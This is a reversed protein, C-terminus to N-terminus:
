HTALATPPPDGASVVRNRGQRKAEYLAADAAAVLDPLGPGDEPWAAVGGSVEIPLGLSKGAVQCPSAALQARLRLGTAHAQRRDTEGLILAFEDGGYRALCDAQRIQSELVGAAHRLVADGVLHGHTDNIAKFHDLDIMMVALPRQFRQSRSWEEQLRRDFERRNRLGTLNDRTAMEDLRAVAAAMVLAYFVARELGHLTLESNELFDAAGSDMAALDTEAKPSGTLLIVPTPCRAAKAERLLELGNRAGLNYDLLCLAYGGHLLRRLGDDYNNAYELVFPERRFRALQLALIDAMVPEDDILLIKRPQAVPPCPSGSARGLCNVLKRGPRGAAAAGGFSWFDSNRGRQPPDARPGCYTTNVQICAIRICGMMRSNRALAGAATQRDADVANAWEGDSTLEWSRIVPASGSESGFVSIM